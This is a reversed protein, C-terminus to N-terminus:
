LWHSSIVFFFCRQMERMGSCPYPCPMQRGKNVLTKAWYIGQFNEEPCTNEVFGVLQHNRRDYECISTPCVCSYDMHIKRLCKLDKRQSCNNVLESCIKEWNVCRYHVEFHKPINSGCPDTYITNNVTIECSSKGQCRFSCSIPLKMSSSINRVSIENWKTITRYECLNQRFKKSNFKTSMNTAFNTWVDISRNSDNWEDGVFM